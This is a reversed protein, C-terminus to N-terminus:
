LSFSPATSAATKVKGLGIVAQCLSLKGAKLDEMSLKGETTLKRIGILFDFGQRSVESRGKVNM